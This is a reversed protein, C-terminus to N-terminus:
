RHLIAIIMRSIPSRPTLLLPTILTNFISPPLPRGRCYLWSGPLAEQSSCDDLLLILALFQFDVQHNRAENISLLTVRIAQRCDFGGARIGFLRGFAAVTVSETLCGCGFGQVGIGAWTDTEIGGERLGLWRRGVVVDVGSKWRVKM